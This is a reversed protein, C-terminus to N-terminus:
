QNLIVAPLGSNCVAARALWPRLAAVRGPTRGQVEAKRGGGEARGERGNRGGGEAKRRGGEARRRGGETRRRVTFAKSGGAHYCARVSSAGIKALKGM